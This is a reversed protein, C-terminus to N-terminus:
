SRRASVLTAAATAVTRGDVRAALKVKTADSDGSARDVRLDVVQGPLIWSRMKVNAVAAVRSADRGGALEIAWHTLAHLLLTAPYVPRRPFHDKFFLADNPVALRAEISQGPERRVLEGLPAELGRCAGPVRGSGALLAFDAAVFARDDFEDMPMMPGVSHKLELVLRGNSRATGSYAIADETCSETLAELELTDGPGCPEHFVIEQALGAVPRVRFDLSAMASWAALQGVAEAALSQPFSGVSEPIWYCGRVRTEPVLETIADVFSFAAFRGGGPSAAAVPAGAV